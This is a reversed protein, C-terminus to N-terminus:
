WNFDPPPQPEDASEVAKKRARDFEEDLRKKKEAEERMAGGFIEDGSKAKEGVRKLAADFLEAKPKAAEGTKEARLVRGTGIDVLLKTGCHPCKTDVEKRLTM